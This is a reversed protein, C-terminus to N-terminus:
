NGEKKVNQNSEYFLQEFNYKSGEVRIVARSRRREVFTEGPPPIPTTAGAVGTLDLGECPFIVDAPFKKSTPPVHYM